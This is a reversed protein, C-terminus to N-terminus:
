ADVDIRRNEVIWRMTASIFVGFPAALVIAMLPGIVQVSLGILVAVAIIGGIAQPASGALIAGRRFLAQNVTADRSALWAAGVGVILLGSLVLGDVVAPALMWRHREDGALTLTGILLSAVAGPLVALTIGSRASTRVLGAFRGVNVVEGDLMANAAALTAIGPPGAFVALLMPALLLGGFGAALLAPLAALMIALDITILIPSNEWITRAVIIPLSQREEQATLAKTPSWFAPTKM